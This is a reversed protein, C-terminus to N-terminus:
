RLQSVRRQRHNRVNSTAFQEAISKSRNSLLLRRRVSSTWSEGGPLAMARRAAADCLLDVIAAALAKTDAPPVLRGTIGDDVAEALAGIGTAVVPKAFSYALPIVGSQTADIYPLAVVSAEQFLRDRDSTSIFRNHIVFNEPHTMLQRYPEFDDGTGAIIIQAGPVVQSILPEAEILYKLGKYEWIRGFFLISKGDDVSARPANMSGIAVHPIVYVKNASTGLLMVVQRKLAEGHVIVSDAQRFGFDMLWQPTRQSDRDGVHYRPDHITVVLPYARLLPLALNFWMHGQQFHVVDPRFRRLQRLLRAITMM